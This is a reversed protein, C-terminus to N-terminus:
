DHHEAEKLNEAGPLIGILLAPNHILIPLHQPCIWRDEGQFRLRILPVVTSDQKCYLCIPQDENTDAM